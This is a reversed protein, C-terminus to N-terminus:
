PAGKAATRPAAPRPAATRSTAQGAGYLRNGIQRVLERELRDLRADEQAIVLIQHERWGEEKIAEADFHVPQVSALSSRIRSQHSSKITRTKVKCM